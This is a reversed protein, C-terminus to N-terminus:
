KADAASSAASGKAKPNPNTGKRLFADKYGYAKFRALVTGYEDLTVPGVLVQKSGNSAPVITIPYKTGYKNVIELINEDERLTAIQIYYKDAELENLSEIMFKDYSTESGSSSPQVVVNNEVTVVPAAVENNYINTIDPIVTSEEPEEYVPPNEEAPVLVIADYEEENELVEPEDSWDEPEEIVEDEPEEAVPEEVVPEEPLAEPEEDTFEEDGTDEEVFEEEEFEPEEEPEEALEEVPEEVIEEVPEEELEDLKEDDFFEEEEAPVEGVEDDVFDEEVPEEEPEEVVEEVPEEAPEEEPEAPITEFEEETEEAPLEDIGDDTFDEYIEPEEEEAVPQVPEEVPTEEIYEPEKEEVFDEEAYEPLAEDNFYEYETVPEEEAPQEVPISYIEEEAPTAPITIAEEFVPEEWEPEEVPATTTQPAPEQVAPTTTEPAKEVPEPMKETNNSAIVASGYVREDQNSRKTIKVINNSNKNIGIADAAEPSLMIAVGESPDLAGIVLIDITADGTINTVSIIDGPLYGVTKAFLGEPFVGPEVVVARGDLSPSFSALVLCGIIIFGLKSINKFFRNDKLRNKM